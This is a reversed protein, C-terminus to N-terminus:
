VPDEQEITWHLIGFQTDQRKGFTQLLHAPKDDTSLRMLVLAAFYYIEWTLWAVDAM